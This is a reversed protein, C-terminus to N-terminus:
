ININILYINQIICFYTLCYRQFLLFSLIILHTKFMCWIITKRDAFSQRSNISERHQKGNYTLCLPKVKLSMTRPEANVYHKWRPLEIWGEYVCLSVWLSQLEPLTPCGKWHVRYLFVIHTKMQNQLVFRMFIVTLHTEVHCGVHEKANKSGLCIIIVYWCKRMGLEDCLSM